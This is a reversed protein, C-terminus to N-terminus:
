AVRDNKAELFDIRKLEQGKYFIKFWHNPNERIEVTQGALPMERFKPVIYKLGNYSIENVKDVFRTERYTLSNDIVELDENKIDRFVDENEKFVKEPKSEIARSYSSNHEKVYWQLVERAEEFTKVKKYKLYIVLQKQFTLFKREIKGKGQPQYPRSNILMIDLEKLGNVILADPNRKNYKPDNDYYIGHPLGYTKFLQKLGLIHNELNDSNIFEAYLVYRSKDDIFMLLSFPVCGEIWPHTTVDGQVLYGVAPAEFRKRYQKKPKKNPYEPLEKVILRYSEESIDPIKPDIDTVIKKLISMSPYVTIRQQRVILEVFTEKIMDKQNENLKRKRHGRELELSEGKKYRVYLKYLWGSSLGLLTAMDSIECVGKEVLQFQGEIKKRSIM